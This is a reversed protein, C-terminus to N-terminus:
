QGSVRASAAEPMCQQSCSSQFPDCLIPVLQKPSVIDEEKDM